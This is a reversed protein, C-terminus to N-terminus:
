WAASYISLWTAITVTCNLGSPTYSCCAPISRFGRGTHVTIIMTCPPYRLPKMPAHSLAWSRAARSLSSPFPFPPLLICYKHERNKQGFDIHWLAAWFQNAWQQWTVAAWAEVWSMQEQKRVRNKRGNDWMVEGAADWCGRGCCCNICIGVVDRARQQSLTTHAVFMKNTIIAHQISHIANALLKGALLSRLM